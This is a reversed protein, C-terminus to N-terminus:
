DHVIRYLVGMAVETETLSVFGRLSDVGNELAVVYVVVGAIQDGEALWVARYEFFDECDREFAATAALADTMSEFHYREDTLMPM